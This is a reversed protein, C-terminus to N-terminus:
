EETLEVFAHSDTEQFALSGQSLKDIGSAKMTTDEATKFVAHNLARKASWRQGANVCLLNRLLRRAQREEVSELSPM